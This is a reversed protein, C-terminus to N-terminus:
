TSCELPASVYRQKSTERKLSSPWSQLVKLIGLSVHLDTVSVLTKPSMLRFSYKLRYLDVSRPKANHGDKM